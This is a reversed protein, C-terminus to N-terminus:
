VENGASKAKYLRVLDRAIFLAALEVDDRPSFDELKRETLATKIIKSAPISGDLDETDPEVKYFLREIGRMMAKAIEKTNKDGYEKAKELWAVFSLNSLNHQRMLIYSISAATLYMKGAEVTEGTKEKAYAYAIFTKVRLHLPLNDKMLKKFIVEADEFEGKELKVTAINLLIGPEDVIALIKQFIREAEDFDKEAKLLIGYQNLSDVLDELYKKDKEALKTRIEIAEKLVKKADKFRKTTIFLIGLNHLVIALDEENNNLTRLLDLANVYHKEAESYKRLTFSLNGKNILVSVVDIIHKENEKALDFFIMLSKEYYEDAEDLRNLAFAINGLYMLVKAKYYGELRDINERCFDYLSQMIFPNLMKEQGIDSIKKVFTKFDKKKLLDNLESLM